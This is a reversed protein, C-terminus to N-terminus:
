GRLLFHFVLNVISWLHKQKISLNDVPPWHHVRSGVLFFNHGISAFKKKLGSKSWQSDITCGGTAVLMTTPLAVLSPTQHTDQCPFRHKQANGNKAEITCPAGQLWQLRVRFCRGSPRTPQAPTDFWDFFECFPPASVPLMALLQSRDRLRRSNARKGWSKLRFLLVLPLLSHIMRSEDAFM